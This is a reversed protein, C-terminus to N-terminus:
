KIKLPIGAVLFYVEDAEKALLQNAKGLVESFVRGLFTEPVVGSGVENTVFISTLFKKKAWGALESIENLVKKEEAAKKSSLKQSIYLTICDILLVDGKLEKVENLLNRNIEVTRWSQPRSRKHEEIKKKMEEDTPQATAVFVVNREEKSAVSVAFSSKGSKVGGTILILRSV